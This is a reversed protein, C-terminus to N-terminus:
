INKFFNSSSIWLRWLGNTAIYCGARERTSQEMEGGNERNISKGTNIM